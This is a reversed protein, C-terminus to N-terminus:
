KSYKDQVAPDFKYEVNDIIISRYFWKENNERLLRDCGMIFGKFFGYRYMALQMYRSSTPRFNSRPGDVPSIIKQKFTILKDAVKTMVNLRKGKPIFAAKDFSPNKVNHESSIHYFLDSDKGWPEEFRLSPFLLLPFFLILLYKLSKM